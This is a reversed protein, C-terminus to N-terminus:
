HYKNYHEFIKNEKKGQELFLYTKFHINVKNYSTDRDKSNRKNYITVNSSLAMLNKKQM